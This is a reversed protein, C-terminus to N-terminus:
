LVAPSGTGHSGIVQPDLDAREERRVLRRRGVAHIEHAGPEVRAEGPHM